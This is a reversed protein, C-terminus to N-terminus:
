GKLISKLVSYDYIPSTDQIKLNDGHISKLIGLASLEPHNRLKFIRVLSDARISTIINDPIIAIEKKVKNIVIVVSGKSLSEIIKSNICLSGCTNKSYLSRLCLFNLIM